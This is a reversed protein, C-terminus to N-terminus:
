FLDQGDINEQFSGFGNTSPPLEDIEEYEEEPLPPNKTKQIVKDQEFQRQELMSHHEEIDDEEDFGYEIAEHDKLNKLREEDFKQMYEQVTDEDTNLKKLMHKFRSRFSHKNKKTYMNKPSKEINEEENEEEHEENEQEQNNDEFDTISNESMTDLNEQELKEQLIESELKFVRDTIYVPKSNKWWWANGGETKAMQKFKEYEHENLVHICPKAQVYAMGYKVNINVPINISSTLSKINNLSKKDYIVDDFIYFKYNENEDYRDWMFDGKMLISNYKRFIEQIVFESKGTKTPGIIFLNGGRTKNGSHAIVWEKIIDLEEMDKWARLNPKYTADLMQDRYHIKNYHMKINKGDRLFSTVSNSKLMEEATKWDPQKLAEEVVNDWKRKTNNNKSEEVAQKNEYKYVPQTNDKEIYDELIDTDGTTQSYNNMPTAYVMVYKGSPLKIVEPWHISKNTKLLIMMHQHKEGTSKGTENGGIIAKAINEKNRGSFINLVHNIDEESEIGDGKFEIQFGKGTLQHNKYTEKQWLKEEGKQTSKIKSKLRHANM